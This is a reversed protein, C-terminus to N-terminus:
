RPIAGKWSIKRGGGRIAPDWDLVGEAELMDGIEDLRRDMWREHRLRRDNTRLVELAAFLMSDPPDGFGQHPKFERGDLFDDVAANIAVGLALFARDPDPPPPAAREGPPPLTVGVADAALQVVKPFDTRTDLGNVAAVLAFLDGGAGCSRCIWVLVGDKEALSCSPDKERHAPCLVLTSTRPSRRSIQLGLREALERHGPTAGRILNLDDGSM